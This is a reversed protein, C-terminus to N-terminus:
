GALLVVLWIAVSSAFAFISSVHLVTRNPWDRRMFSRLVYIVFGCVALLSTYLVLWILLAQAM